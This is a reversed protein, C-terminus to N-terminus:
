LSKWPSITNVSGKFRNEPPDSPKTENHSLKVKWGWDILFIHSKGVPIEAFFRPFIKGDSRTAVLLQWGPFGKDAEVIDQGALKTIVCDSVDVGVVNRSWYNAPNRVATWNWMSFFKTAGGSYNDWWGRKDGLVGDYPNDWLLAWKPLRVLQWFGSFRPDRFPVPDGITRRFPLALAVIPLGLLTVPINLLFIATSKSILTLIAKLM